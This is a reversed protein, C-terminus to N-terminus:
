KGLLSKKLDKDAPKKGLWVALLAQQFDAGKISGKDKGNAQVHTSGDSLFDFVYSDGKHATVFFTNFRDLHERLAAMMKKPQNKKFGLEWGGTLKEESVEDYLFDMTLRKSGTSAIIEKASSSPKELYLGSVYINFFYKTRIGAGNLQLSKDELQIMEPLSVGEVEAAGSLGPLLLTFFIFASILKM